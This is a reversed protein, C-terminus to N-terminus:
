SRGGFGSASRQNTITPAVSYRHKSTSLIINVQTRKIRVLSKIDQLIRDLSDTNRTVIKMIYDFSDTVDYCELIEDERAVFDLLAQAHDMTELSISMFVFLEKGLAQPNLITTYDKIIGSANLKRM